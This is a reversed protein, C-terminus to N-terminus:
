AEDIANRFSETVRKIMEPSRGTVIAGIMIARVGCSKLHKVEKPLIARQTPVVVPLATEKSIMRYCALDLASLPAGYCEQRLISAELIEVGIAELHRAQWIEYSPDLAVMKGMGEIELLYIPMHHAYIDWFDFGCRAMEGMENETAVVESGPVIGVPIKAAKLIELLAGKEADWTGFHTGSAHHHVNLHVKLADAGSNQAAMALDVDNRPLSVVLCFKKSLEHVFRSM